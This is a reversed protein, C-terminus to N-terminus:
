CGVRCPTRLAWDGRLGTMLHEAAYDMVVSVAVVDPDTPLEVQQGVDCDFEHDLFDDEQGQSYYCFGGCSDEWMVGGHDSFDDRFSDERMVGGHDGVGVRNPEIETGPAGDETVCLGGLVFLRDDAVSCARRGNVASLPTDDVLGLPGRIYYKPGSAGLSVTSSTCLALLGSLPLTSSSARASGSPSLSCCPEAGLDTLGRQACRRRRLRARVRLRLRRRARASGLGLPGGCGRVGLPPVEVVLRGVLGAGGGLTVGAACPIHLGTRGAM